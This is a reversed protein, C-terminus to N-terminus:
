KMKMELLLVAGLGVAGSGLVGLNGGPAGAAAIKDLPLKLAGVMLGIMFSLTHEEYNNLFWEILRSFGALSVLGGLVFLGIDEVVFNKLSGILHEYQGLMLVVFSGSVGPLIMACIALVGSGFIVLPGHGLQFYELSIVAYSVAFGCLASVTNKRNVVSKNRYVAISSALILGFFFGYVYPAYNELFFLIIRSALLFASAMGLGVPILFELDINRLDRPDISQIADIFREYIGTILAVTGGSVGPIIDALGMFIGRLFLTLKERLDM